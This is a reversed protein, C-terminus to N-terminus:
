VKILRTSSLVSVDYDPASGNVIILLSDKSRRFTKSQFTKSHDDQVSVNRDPLTDLTMEENEHFLDLSQTMIVESIPSM